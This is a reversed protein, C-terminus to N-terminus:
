SCNVHNSWRRTCDGDAAAVRRGCGLRNCDAAELGASAATIVMPRMRTHAGIYLAKHLSRGEGRLQNVYEVLILGKQVSLGFHALLRIISSVNFTTATIWLAIFGGALAFPITAIVLLPQLDFPLRSLATPFVLLAPVIFASAVQSRLSKSDSIVEEM